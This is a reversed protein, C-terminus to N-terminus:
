VELDEVNWSSQISCGTCDENEELCKTCFVNYFDKLTHNKFYVLPIEMISRSRIPRRTELSLKFGIGNPL